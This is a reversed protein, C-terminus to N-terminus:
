ERGAAGDDGNRERRREGPLGGDKRQALKLTWHKNERGTRM